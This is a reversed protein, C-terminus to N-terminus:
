LLIKFVAKSVTEPGALQKKIRHADGPFVVLFEGPKLVTSFRAPGDYAYFDNEERAEVLRLEEPPAVDVGEEGSLMIHIDLYRRHAEFYNGEPPVTEYTFRTCYLGDGDLKVPKGEELSALFEPTIRVLAQDLRPHIGLYASADRNMAYIM